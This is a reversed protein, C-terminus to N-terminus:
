RGILRNLWEPGAVIVGQPLRARLGRDATVVLVATDRAAPHSSDPRVLAEARAVITSDGDRPAPVVELLPQGDMGDFPEEATDPFTGGRAAGELVAVIRTIRRHRGDPGAPETGILAEIATLLRMAAARRDRWWGDPRSGMVNAVDVVVVTDPVGNRRDQDARHAAADSRDDVV